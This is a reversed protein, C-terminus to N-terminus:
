RSFTYSVGATFRSMDTKVTEDLLAEFAQRGASQKQAGVYRGDPEQLYSNIRWKAFPSGMVHFAWKGESAGVAKPISTAIIQATAPATLIGLVLAVACGDHGENEIGKGVARGERSV